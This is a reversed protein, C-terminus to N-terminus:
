GVAEVKEAVELGPWGGPREKQGGDHHRGALRRRRGHRV